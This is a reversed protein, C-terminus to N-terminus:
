RTAYSARVATHYNHEISPSYGDLVLEGKTDRDTWYAGVLRTPMDGGAELVLAGHHIPSSARLMLRPVNQYTALLDYRGGGRDVVSASTSSSHSEDTLLTLSVTSYTQRVVLYVDKVPRTAGTSPDVWTSQLTGKCTGRVVPRKAFLRVPWFRWLWVDFAQLALTAAGVAVSYPRLYGVGLPTGQLLLLAAWVLVAVSVAIRIQGSSLM